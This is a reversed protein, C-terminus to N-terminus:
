EMTERLNVNDKLNDLFYVQAIEETLLFSQLKRGNTDFHDYKIFDIGDITVLESELMPEKSFALKYGNKFRMGIVYDYGGNAAILAKVNSNNM